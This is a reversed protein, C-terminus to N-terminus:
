GAAVVWAFPADAIRRAIREGGVLQNLADFEPLFSPVADGRFPLQEEETHVAIRPGHMRPSLGRARSLYVLWPDHGLEVAANWFASAFSRFGGGFWPDQAVVPFRM